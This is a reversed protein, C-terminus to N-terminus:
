SIHGQFELVTKVVLVVNQRKPKAFLDCLFEPKKRKKSNKGQNIVQNSEQNSEQNSGQNRLRSVTTECHKQPRYTVLFNWHHSWSIGIIQFIHGQFEM